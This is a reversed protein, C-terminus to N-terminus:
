DAEGVGVGVDAEAIDHVLQVSPHRGVRPRQTQDLRQIPRQSRSGETLQVNNVKVFVETATAAYIPAIGSGTAEAALGRETRTVTVM